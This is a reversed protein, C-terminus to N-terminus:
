MCPEDSCQHIWVCEIQYLYSNWVSMHNELQIRKGLYAQVMSEEWIKTDKSVVIADCFSSAMTALTITDTNELKLKDKYNSRAKRDM